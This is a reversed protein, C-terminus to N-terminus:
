VRPAPDPQAPAIVRNVLEGLGSDYSIAIEDDVELSTSFVASTGMYLGRVEDARIKRHNFLHWALNELSHAMHQQGTKLPGSDMVVKGNRYIKCQLLVEDIDFDPSDPTVFVPGLSALGDQVKAHTLYLPNESEWGQDSFDNGGSFGVLTPVGSRDAMFFAVVEPEPSLRISNGAKELQGNHSVCHYGNAKFFIEPKAGMEGPAPTGGKVGEQYIKDYFNVRSGSVDRAEEERADASRKHTVGAGWLQFAWPNHPQDVPLLLRPAGPQQEPKTLSRYSLGSLSNEDNKINEDVWTRVPIDRDLLSKFLDFLSTVEPKQATVDVVTEGDDLLLGLGRSSNKAYQYQVFRM